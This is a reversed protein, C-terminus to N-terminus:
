AWPLLVALRSLLWVFDHLSDISNQTWCCIRKGTKSSNIKRRCWIETLNWNDKGRSEPHQLLKLLFATRVAFVAWIQRRTAMRQRFVSIKPMVHFISIILVTHKKSAPLFVCWNWSGGNRPALVATGQRYFQRKLCLFDGSRSLFLM